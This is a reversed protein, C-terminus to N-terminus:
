PDYRCKSSNKLACISISQFSSIKHLPVQICIDEELLLKKVKWFVKGVLSIGGGFYTDEHGMERGSVWFPLPHGSKKVV